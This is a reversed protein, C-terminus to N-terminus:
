PVPDLFSFAAGPALFNRAQQWSDLGAKATSTNLQEESSANIGYAMTAEPTPFYRPSTPLTLPLKSWPLIRYRTPVMDLAGESEWTMDM